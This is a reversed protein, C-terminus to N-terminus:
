RNELKIIMNMSPKQDGFNLFKAQVYVPIWLPIKTSLYLEVLLGILIHVSFRLIGPIIQYHVSHIEIFLGEMGSNLQDKQM